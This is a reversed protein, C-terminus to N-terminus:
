VGCMGECENGFLPLSTGKSFDVDALPVLSPHLYATGDYRDVQKLSAQLAKEYEVAKNWEAPIAKIRLWEENSHFPCYVCASRPPEPFGHNKMWALCDSRRMQADILPFVNEVYPRTSPKMRIIEDISIGILMKIKVSVGPNKKREACYIKWCASYIPDLKHTMTCQRMLLGSPAGDPMQMYAPPQSKTYSKGTKASVRVRLSDVSLIGKQVRHIPYPLKTEIWNLWEYVAQPEDGTDAFIACQPMPSLEGCAYMLAMTSNQVGAGLSLIPINTIAM